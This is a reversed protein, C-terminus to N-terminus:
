SSFAQLLSKSQWKNNSAIQSSTICQAAQSKKYEEVYEHAITPRQRANRGRDRHIFFNKEFWANWALICFLETQNKNLRIMAALQQIISGLRRFCVLSM